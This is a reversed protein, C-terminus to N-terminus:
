RHHKLRVPLMKMTSNWYSWALKVSRVVDDGRLPKALVDYGGKRIVEQWLYEDVVRSTLIVAPRRPSSALLQVVDRWDRGPLDRDCLIIPVEMQNAIAEAEGCSDTIRVDLQNRGAMNKLLERDQDGLVLAVIPIASARTANQEAERSQTPVGEFFSRIVKWM